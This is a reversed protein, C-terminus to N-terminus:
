DNGEVWHHFWLSLVYLSWVHYLSRTGRSRAAAFLGELRGRDFGVLDIFRPRFVAEQIESLVKPALFIRPATPFGVKRRGVVAAPLKTRAYAKLFAKPEPARIRPPIDLALRVVTPDLFPVRAEVGYFMTAKDVRMLLREPLGLMLDILTLQDLYPREHFDALADIRRRIHAYPEATRGRGNLLREQDAKTFLAGYGWHLHEGDAYRRLQEGLTSDAAGTLSVLGLPRPLAALASVLLAAASRPFLHQLVALRDHLRWLRHVSGYGCFVEDAGEGVQAVTVGSSKTFRALHLNAAVSPAGIPDDALAPLRHLSDLVEAESLVIENHDTGFQRAIMRAYSLDSEPDRDDGPYGVTFTKVPAGLAESMLAVTLSSDLGGSLMAGFPVDSMLRKETAQRLEIALRRGLGAADNSCHSRTEGPRWYRETAFGTDLSLHFRTGPEVKEISRHLTSPGPVCNFALYSTVEEVRPERSVDPFALLAKPESAFAFRRPSLAYYLPKVGLRDRAGLLQRRRADYIVFAFMGDLRHVLNDGEEEYLHVIVETDAASRFRHGSAVLEKRLRLYNYIEGNFVIWVTDDENPMPQAGAASLDLIALRRHGLVCRGDPSVYLGAGDPGRHTLRDRASQVWRPLALEPDGRLQFYGVIGCM